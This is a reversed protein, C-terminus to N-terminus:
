DETEVPEDLAFVFVREGTRSSIDTHMTVVERGCAESVIKKIEAGSGEVLRSRMQKFLEIGGRELCLKKEGQSMMGHLRVVVLDDLVFSRAFKPGKGLFEREFRTLSETISSEIQGKTMSTSVSTAPYPSKGRQSLRLRRDNRLM